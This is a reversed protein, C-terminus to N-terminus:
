FRCTASASCSPVSVNGCPSFLGTFGCALCGWGSLSFNVWPVSVVGTTHDTLTLPRSQLQDALRHERSGAARCPLHEQALILLLLISLTFEDSGAFRPNLLVCKNTEITKEQTHKEKRHSNGM